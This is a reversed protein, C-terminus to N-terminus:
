WFSSGPRCTKSKSISFVDCTKTVDAYDCSIYELEYFSYIKKEPHTVGFFKSGTMWFVDGIKDFGINVTKNKEYTKKVYNAM